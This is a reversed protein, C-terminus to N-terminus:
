FGLALGSASSSGVPTASAIGLRDLLALLDETPIFAARPPDSRGMGRRDYRVVHYQRGLAPWVQDWTVSDLLGDHLLVVAAANAPGSEEYYIHSGDRSLFAAAVPTTLGSTALASVTAFAVLTHLRLPDM